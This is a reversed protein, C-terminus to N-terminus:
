SGAEASSGMSYRFLESHRRFHIDMAVVDGRNRAEKFQEEVIRMEARIEAVGRAPLTARRGAVATDGGPTLPVDPGLYGCPYTGALIDPWSGYGSGMYPSASQAVGSPEFPFAGPTDTGTAVGPCASVGRRGRLWAWLGRVSSWRRPGGSGSSWLWPWGDPPPDVTGAIDAHHIRAPVAEPNDQM